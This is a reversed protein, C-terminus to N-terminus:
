FHPDMTGALDSECRCCMQEGSDHPVCSCLEFKSRSEGYTERDRDRETEMQMEM